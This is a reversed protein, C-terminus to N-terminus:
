GTTRLSLARRREITETITRTEVEGDVGTVQMDIVRVRRRVRGEADADFTVRITGSVRENAHARVAAERTLTRRMLEALALDAEVRERRVADPDLELRVVYTAGQADRSTRRMPSPTSAMPDAYSAGDHLEPPQPDFAGIAELVSEPDCEIRFASWTFIWQGCIARTWNAKRLWAQLRTELQPRNLLRLAGDPTKLVRAPFQWTRARDEATSNAPLDYELEVGTKRLEIVREAITDRDYTTGTSGSSSQQSSEQVRTIAFVEGVRPAPGADPGPAAGTLLLAAV